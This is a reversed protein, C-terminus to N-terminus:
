YSYGYNVALDLRIKGEFIWLRALIEVQDGKQLSRFAPGTMLGHNCTVPHGEVSVLVLDYRDESAVEGEVIYYKGDYKERAGEPDRAVEEALAKATIRPYEAVDDGEAEADNLDCPEARFTGVITATEGPKVKTWPPSKMYCPLGIASFERATTAAATNSEPDCELYAIPYSKDTLLSSVGFNHIVGSVRVRTGDYKAKAAASPKNYGEADAALEALFDELKGDFALAEPEAATAGSPETEAGAKAPQVITEQQAVPDATPEPSVLESPMEETPMESFHLSSADSSTAAASDAQPSSRPRFEDEVPENAATDVASNSGAAQPAPEIPSSCSAFLLLFAASWSYAM